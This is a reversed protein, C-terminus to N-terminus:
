AWPSFLRMALAAAVMLLLGAAVRLGYARGGSVFAVVSKALVSTALLGVLGWRVQAASLVQEHFLQALSAFSAHVEALAAVCATVLAGRPGLWANMAAAIFLVLAILLAFWLAQGFRFMRTDATPAPVGVSEGGRLGLLGGVMLVAAAAALEPALLVLLPPSVALVIPVFLSLSALNALMAAGVAPRLLAPAERVRQGFGAVAATSSVYGAFFGAIALGWRNGVLRLAVHGLASIAMVLVVLKWVTAPNFSGFPGLARDPVLPLIVLAAALLLLGDHVERESLVQQAFRHLSAKAYLLGAALVALGVAVVAQKCALAGLLLTLVLAVEGTLGIDHTSERWYSILVLGAVLALLLLFVPMGLTYAVAGLLATLAHTRLGALTDPHQRQRVAGILLGLGLATLLPPLSPPLEPM